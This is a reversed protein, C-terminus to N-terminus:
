VLPNKNDPVNKGKPLIMKSVKEIRKQMEKQSIPQPQQPQQPTTM